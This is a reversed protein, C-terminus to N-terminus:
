LGQLQSYITEALQMNSRNSLKKVRETLLMEDFLEEAQGGHFLDTKQINKKMEKFMKELFFAEFQEAAEYLKQNEPSSQAHKKIDERSMRLSFQSTPIEKRTDTSISNMLQKHFEQRSAADELPKNKNKLREKLVKEVTNEEVSKYLLPDIGYSM